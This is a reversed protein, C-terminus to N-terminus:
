VGMAKKVLVRSTDLMRKFDDDSLGAGRVIMKAREVTILDGPAHTDTNLILRAGYRLATKAV